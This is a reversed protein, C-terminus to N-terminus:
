TNMVSNAVIQSVTQLLAQVQEQSKQFNQVEPITDLEQLTKDVAEQDGNMAKLQDLKEKAVPHQLLSQEATKFDVVEETQALLAGLETARKLIDNRLELKM